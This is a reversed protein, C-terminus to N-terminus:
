KGRQILQFGCGDRTTRGAKTAAAITARSLFEHKEAQRLSPYVRGTRTSRVKFYVGRTRDPLDSIADVISESLLLLLRDDAIDLLWEPYAKAFDVFDRELIRHHRKGNRRKTKLLGREVWDHVRDRDIGLMAALGTCNWGGDIPIRSLGLRKIKTLIADPVRDPWQKRFQRIVESVEDSGVNEQLYEIEAISWRRIM